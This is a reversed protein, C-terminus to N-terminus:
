DNPTEKHYDCLDSAGVHCALEHTHKHAERANYSASWVFLHIAILSMIIFKDKFSM